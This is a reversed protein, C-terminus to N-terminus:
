RCRRQRIAPRPTGCACLATRRGAPWCMRAPWRGSPSQGPRGPTAPWGGTFHAAGASAGCPTGLCFSETRLLALADPEDRAAVADLIAARQEPTDAARLQDLTRWYLRALPRIRYNVAPLVRALREPDAYPLFGADAILDELTGAAAAHTALHRTVYPNAFEWEDDRVSADTPMM